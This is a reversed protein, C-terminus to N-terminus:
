CIVHALCAGSVRYWLYGCLIVYLWVCLSSHSHPQSNCVWEMQAVHANYAVEQLNHSLVDIFLDVMAQRCLVCWTWLGTTSSSLFMSFCRLLSLVMCGICCLKLADILIPKLWFSPLQRLDTPLRDQAGRPWRFLPALRAKPGSTCICHWMLVHWCFCPWKSASLVCNVFM